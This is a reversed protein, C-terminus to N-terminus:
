IETDVILETPEVVVAIKSPLCLIPKRISWPHPALERCSNVVFRGHLLRTSHGSCDNAPRSTPGASKPSSHSGNPRFHVLSRTVM